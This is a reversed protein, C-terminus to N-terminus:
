HGASGAPGVPAWPSAAPSRWRNSGLGGLPALSPPGGRQLQPGPSGAVGPGKFEGRWGPCTGADGYVPGTRVGPGSVSETLGSSLPQDWATAATSAPAPVTKRRAFVAPSVG